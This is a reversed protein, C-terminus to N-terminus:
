RRIGIAIDGYEADVYDAVRPDQFAEVLKRYAASDADAGRVVLQIAYDEPFPETRVEVSEDYGSARLFSTPLFALDTDEVSRALTAAGAPVFQVNKPNATIDDVTYAAPEAASDLTLVGAEQLVNLALAGNVPDDPIAVKAGDPLEDVTKHKTSALTGLSVYVPTAAVLDWDPEGDLVIKLYPEHVAINGDIEGAVLSENMVRSDQLEKAEITIGYDPAVKEAVFSVVGGELPNDSGSAIVFSTKGENSGGGPNAAGCASLSILATAALLAGAATRLRASRRILPSSLAM